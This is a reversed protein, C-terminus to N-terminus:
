DYSYGAFMLESPKGDKYVVIYRCQGREIDDFFEHNDVMEHTPKDTDYLERLRAASLPAAVGYDPSTAVREIDLISRTGDEASARVAQKITEHKAGPNQQSFGPESFKIFRIVPNYRGAAFERERLKDLAAQVDADYPVFYYYAHGGM